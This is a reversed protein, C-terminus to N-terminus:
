NLLLRLIAYNNVIDAIISSRKGSNVLTVNINDTVYRIFLNMCYYHLRVKLSVELLHM